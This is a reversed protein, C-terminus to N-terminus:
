FPAHPRSQRLWCGMIKECHALQAKTRSARRGQWVNSRRWYGGYRHASIRPCTTSTTSATTTMTPASPTKARFGRQLPSDAFFTALNGKRRSKRECEEASVVVVAPVGNRTVTQPGSNRAQEIVASFKAKTQAVSWEGDAMGIERGPIVLTVLRTM